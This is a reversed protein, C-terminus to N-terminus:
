QNSSIKLSQLLEEAAEVSPAHVSFCVLNPKLEHSYAKIEDVSWDYIWLSKGANQIKKLLDMWEITRPQGEGPVWQICDIEPIALIDDLHGLAGKGDYHYVCRELFAAEQRISPIVFERVQEPSLFISFDCQVVAFREECYTPSWGVSGHEAMKGARYAMDFVEPYLSDLCDLVRHVEQPDDMIDFCLEQPSRLASLADMNSHFDLQSILFEGKAYDATYEM